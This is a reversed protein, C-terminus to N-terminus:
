REGDAFRLIVAKLKGQLSLNADALLARLSIEKRLFREKTAAARIAKERGRVIAAMLEPFEAEYQSDIPPVRSLPVAKATMNGSHFRYGTLPRNIVLISRDRRRLIRLWYDLDEM